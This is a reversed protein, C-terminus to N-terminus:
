KFLGMGKLTRKTKVATANASVEKTKDDKKESSSKTM